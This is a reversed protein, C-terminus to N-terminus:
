EDIFDALMEDWVGVDENPIALPYQEPNEKHQKEYWTKFAAVRKTEQTTFQALTVGINSKMQASM